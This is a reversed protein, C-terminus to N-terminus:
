GELLDKSEQDTPYVTIGRLPARAQERKAAGRQYSKKRRLWKETDRAIDSAMFRFAMQTEPEMGKFQASAAVIDLPGKPEAASRAAYWFLASFLQGRQEMSLTLVQLYADLYILFSKKQNEEEIM